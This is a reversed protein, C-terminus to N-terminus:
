LGRNLGRDVFSIKQRSLCNIRKYIVIHSAQKSREYVIRSTLQRNNCVSSSIIPLRLTGSEANFRPKKDIRTQAKNESNFMESLFCFGKRQLLVNKKSSLKLFNFISM